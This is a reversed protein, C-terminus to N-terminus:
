VDNKEQQYEDHKDLRKELEAIKDYLKQLHSAVKSPNMKLNDGIDFKIIDDYLRGVKKVYEKFNQKTM